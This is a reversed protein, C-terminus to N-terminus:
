LCSVAVAGLEKAVLWLGPRALGFNTAALSKTIKFQNM